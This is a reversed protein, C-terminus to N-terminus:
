IFLIIDEFNYTTNSSLDNPTKTYLRYSEYVIGEDDIYAPADIFNGNGYDVQLVLKFNCSCMRIDTRFTGNIYSVENTIAHITYSNAYDTNLIIPNFTNDNNQFYGNIINIQNYKSQLRQYFRCTANFQSIFISTTHGNIIIYIKYTTNRTLKVNDYIRKDSSSANYSFTKSYEEQWSLDELQYKISITVNNTGSYGSLINIIGYYNFEEEDANTITVEGIEITQGFKDGTASYDLHHRTISPYASQENSLIQEVDVVEDIMGILLLTLLQLFFIKM